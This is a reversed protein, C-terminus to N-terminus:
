IEFLHDALRRGEDVVRQVSIEIHHQRQRARGQAGSRRFRWGRDEARQRQKFWRVLRNRLGNVAVADHERDPPVIFARARSISSRAKVISAAKGSYTVCVIEAAGSM